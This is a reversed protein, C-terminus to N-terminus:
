QHPRPVVERNAQAKMAQTRVTTAQDLQIIADRIDGDELPPRNVPAQDFNADEELPPVQEGCPTAGANAIEEELRRTRLTKM